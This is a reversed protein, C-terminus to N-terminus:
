PAADGHEYSIQHSPETQPWNDEWPFKFSVSIWLGKALYEAPAVFQTTAGSKLVYEGVIDPTALIPAHPGAWKWKNGEHKFRGSSHVSIRPYIKKAEPAQMGFTLFSLDFISNNHITLPIGREQAPDQKMDYTIYVTPKGSELHVTKPAFTQNPSSGTQSSLILLFFLRLLSARVM